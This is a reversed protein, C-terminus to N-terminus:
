PQAKRIAELIKEMKSGSDVYGDGGKKSHVLKGAVEVELYGTVGPTGYGEVEVETDDFEELIEKKIKEFQLSYVFYTWKICLTERKLCCGSFNLVQPVEYAM